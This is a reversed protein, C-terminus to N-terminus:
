YKRYLLGPFLKVLAPILTIACLASVTVGLASVLSLTKLVLAANSKLFLFPVAGTVTTLTTAALVPLRRRFICYCSVENFKITQRGFKTQVLSDAVLAAANVALGSVAVFAAASVANLPYDRLVMYLAPFALSPPVVALITLPFVFSEKLAAIIMYCLLLALIFLFSQASVNEAAKIAEPDFEISYGPPLDMDSLVTMVRYKVRRPDMVLSRVSFSASRRRDERQISSVAMRSEGTSDEIRVLSTLGLTASEGKVPINLVDEKNAPIDGMRIRVDIEGNVEIRKYAVPGHINRRATQGISNFSLGNMAIRERDARLNIQPSGEKFHLVTESIGEMSGCRRAAQVAFDRCYSEEDGSVKIRWSRENVSSEMLYVFGGSVPTNRMLQRVAADGTLHPNFGVLVSGTGTRALTQVSRIGPNNKLEIGYAALLRDTEETHLGGAFEIQAYVSDESREQEVDAGNLFLATIGMIGLLLWCGIVLLPKRLPLRILVALKRRYFRGLASTIAAFASIIPPLLCIYKKDSSNDNNRNCTLESPPHGWFFLPPLLSLALILAVINVVAVSWAASNMDSGEQVMLPLLAIVTTLIGSVLPFRLADMAKKGDAKTKCHRFYEACLIAADVAAGVGAALGALVMKNLSFGVLILLAASFFMTIPVTLACILSFNKRRSCLLACLVAVMCAGQLAAGLASSRAQREEDGRDSLISFELGPFKALEEKIQGSLKGLDANDSGMVVILATEKGDLRSRNEPNREQETVEALDELLIFRKIGNAEEVPILAHRLEKIGNDYRGDVMISIERGNRYKTAYYKTGYHQITGGPLLVDNNGLVAAIDSADIRRAAAEERKLTIVIERQGAGSIEVNGVGPLSELAPKVAKELLTGTDANNKVAATWVPIRSEGSSIIEPRQAAGPLSEYVRQAADRVAEYRGRERGKFYCVVRTRGNESSSFIRRLGRIGSLTDELPVAAIREMEAADMGYFRQIVTFSENITNKNEPSNKEWIQIIFFAATCLGLIICIARRPRELISKNTKM